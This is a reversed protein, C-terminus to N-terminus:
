ILEVNEKDILSAFGEITMAPLFVLISEHSPLAAQRPTHGQRSFHRCLTMADDFSQFKSLLIGDGAEEAHLQTLMPCSRNPGLATAQYPGSLISGTM